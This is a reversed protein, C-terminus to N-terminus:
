QGEELKHSIFEPGNDMRINAPCGGSKYWDSWCCIVRLTPLSTDTEIASERNFDEM